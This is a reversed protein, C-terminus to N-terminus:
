VCKVPRRSGKPPIPPPAKISDNDGLETHETIRLEAFIPNSYANTLAASLLFMRWKEESSPNEVRRAQVINKRLVDAIEKTLTIKEEFAKPDTTSANPLIENRIKLRFAAYVPNVETLARYIWPLVCWEAAACRGCFDCRVRPPRRPVCGAGVCATLDLCVDNGSPHLRPGHRRRGLERAPRKRFPGLLGHPPADSGVRSKRSISM